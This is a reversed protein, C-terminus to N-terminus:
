HVAQELIGHGATCFCTILLAAYNDLMHINNMLQFYGIIGLQGPLMMTALVLWFLQKNYKLNISQCLRLSDARGRLGYDGHQCPSIFLSNLLGEM